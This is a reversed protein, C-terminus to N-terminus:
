ANIRTFYDTISTDTLSRAEDLRTQIGLDSSFQSLKRAFPENIDAVYKRFQQFPQSHKKGHLNTWMVQTTLSMGEM